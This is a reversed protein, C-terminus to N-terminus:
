VVARTNFYHIIINHTKKLYLPRKDCVYPSTSYNWVFKLGIEWTTIPEFEELGRTVNFLTCTDPKFWFVGSVSEPENQDKATTTAGVASPSRLRKIKFTLIDLKLTLYFSLFNGGENKSFEFTITLRGGKAATKRKWKIKV